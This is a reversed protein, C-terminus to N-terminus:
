VFSHLSFFNFVNKEKYNFIAFLLGLLGFLNTKGLPSAGEDMVLITPKEDFSLDLIVLNTTLGLWCSVVNYLLCFKPHWTMQFMAHEKM